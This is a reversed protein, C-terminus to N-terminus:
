GKGMKNQSSTVNGGRHILMWINNTSGSHINGRDIEKVDTVGCEVPQGVEARRELM